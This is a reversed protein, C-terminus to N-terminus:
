MLEFRIPVDLWGEVAHGGRRAPVFTWREVGAVAARDLARHGSSRA